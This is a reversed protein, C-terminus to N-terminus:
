SPYRMYDQILRSKALEELDLQYLPHMLDLGMRYIIILYSKFFQLSTLVPKCNKVTRIIEFYKCKVKDGIFRFDAERTKKM